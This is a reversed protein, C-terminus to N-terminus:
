QGVIVKLNGRLLYHLAIPGITKGTKGLATQTSQAQVTLNVGFAGNVHLLGEGKRAGGVNIIKLAHLACRIAQVHAKNATM